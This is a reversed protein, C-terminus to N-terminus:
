NLSILRNPVAKLWAQCDILDAGTIGRGACSASVDVFSGDTRIAGGDSGMIAINPNNPVFVIAHQDPHMGLPPSQTDNTMDTFTAGGDVSRQITRGNSPSPAGIAGQGIDDYQMQGGIWVSDPSGPPSAVPM